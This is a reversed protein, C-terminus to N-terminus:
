LSLSLKIEVWLIEYDSSELDYRRSPVFESSVYMAVGGGRRGDLRDLRILPCYGPINFLYNSVLLQLGHLPVRYYQPNKTM